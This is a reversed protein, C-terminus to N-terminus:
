FHLIHLNVSHGDIMVYLPGDVPLASLWWFFKLGPESAPHEFRGRRM